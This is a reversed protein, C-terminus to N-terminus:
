GVHDSGDHLGPAWPCHKTTGPRESLRDLVGDRLLPPGNSAHARNRAGKVVFLGLQLNSTTPLYYEVLPIAVDQSPRLRCVYFVFCPITAFIEVLVGCSRLFGDAGCHRRHEQPRTGPRAPLLM